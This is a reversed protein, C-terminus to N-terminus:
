FVFATIFVFLNKPSAAMAQPATRAILEQLPFSSEGTIGSGWGSGTVSITLAVM